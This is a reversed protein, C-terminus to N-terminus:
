NGSNNSTVLTKGDSTKEVTYNIEQTAGGWGAITESLTAKCSLSGVPSKAVTVIDDLQFDKKAASFEKLLAVYAESSGTNTATFRQFQPSRNLIYADM